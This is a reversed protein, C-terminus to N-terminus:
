PTGPTIVSRGGDVTIVSGNVYSSADSALFLAASAAEEVLAPRRMPTTDRQAASFPRTARDVSLPIGERSERLAGTNICNVRIGYKALAFGMVHTLPQMGGKAASYAVLGPNGLVGDISGHNVIAANGSVKLAPLLHQSCLFPATLNIAIQANWTDLSL